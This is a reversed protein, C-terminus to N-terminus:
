DDAVKNTYLTYLMMYQVEGKWVVIVDTALEALIICFRCM